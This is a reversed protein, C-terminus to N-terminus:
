SLETSSTTDTTQRRARRARPPQRRRPRGAPVVHHVPPRPRRDVVGRALELPVVRRLRVPGSLARVTHQGKRGTLPGAPARWRRFRRRPPCPKNRKEAGDSEAAAAAAAAAVLGGGGGGGGRERERGATTAPWTEPSRALPRAAPGSRVVLYERPRTREHPLSLSPPPGAMYSRTTTTATAHARARASAQRGPMKHGRRPPTGVAVAVPPLVPDVRAHRSHSAVVPYRM